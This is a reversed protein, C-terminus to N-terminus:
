QPCKLKDLLDAQQKALPGLVQKVTAALQPGLDLLDHKGTRHQGQYDVTYRFSMTPKETAEESEFEWEVGIELGPVREMLQDAQAKVVDIYDQM